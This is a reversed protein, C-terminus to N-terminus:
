QQWQHCIETVYMSGHAVLKMTEVPGKDRTEIHVRRLALVPIPLRRVLSKDRLGARYQQLISINELPAKRRRSALFQAPNSLPPSAPQIRVLQIINVIDTPYLSDIKNAIVMLCCHVILHM